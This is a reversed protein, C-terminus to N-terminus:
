TCHVVSVVFQATVATFIPTVGPASFTLVAVAIQIDRTLEYCVTESLCCVWLALYLAGSELLLSLVGEARTKRSSKGMQRKIFRRYKRVFVSM